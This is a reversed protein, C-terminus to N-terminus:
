LSRNRTVLLLRHSVATGGAAAPTEESQRHGRVQKLLLLRSRTHSCCARTESGSRRHLRHSHRGCRRSTSDFYVPFSRRVEETAKEEMQLTEPQWTAPVVAEATLAAHTHVFVSQTISLQVTQIALVFNGLVFTLVQVETKVGSMQILAAHSGPYEDAGINTSM